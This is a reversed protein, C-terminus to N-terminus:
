ATPLAEQCGVRRRLAAKSRLRLAPLGAVLLWLTSPLPVAEVQEVVQLSIRAYNTAVGPTEFFSMSQNGEFSGFVGVPAGIDKFTDNTSFFLVLTSPNFNLGGTPLDAFLPVEVGNRTLMEDGFDGGLLNAITKIGVSNAFGMDFSYKYGGEYTVTVDYFVPAASSPGAIFLMCAALATMLTKKM